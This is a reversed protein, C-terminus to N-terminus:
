VKVLPSIICVNEHGSKMQSRIFSRVSCFYLNESNEGLFPLHSVIPLSKQTFKGDATTSGTNLYIKRVTVDKIQEIILMFVLCM